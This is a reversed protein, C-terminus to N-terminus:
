AVIQQHRVGNLVYEEVTWGPVPLFAACNRREDWSSWPCDGCANKCDICINANNHIDRRVYGEANYSPISWQRRYNGVTKLGCQM